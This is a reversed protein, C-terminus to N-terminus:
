VSLPQPMIQATSAITMNKFLEVIHATTLQDLDNDIHVFDRQESRFYLFQEVRFANDQGKEVDCIVKDRMSVSSSGLRKLDNVHFYIDGEVSSSSIFGFGKLTSFWKVYGTVIM